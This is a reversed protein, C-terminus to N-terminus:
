GLKDQFSTHVTICNTPHMSTAYIGPGAVGTSSPCLQQTRSISAVADQCTYHYLKQPANLGGFRRAKEEDALCQDEADIEGKDKAALNPMDLLARTYILLASPGLAPSWHDGALRNCISGDAAVNPHFIGKAFRLQLPQWPYKDPFSIEVKFVGTEWPTGLPGQIYATWPESTGATDVDICVGDKELTLAACRKAEALVRKERMPNPPKEAPGPSEHQTADSDQSSYSAGM